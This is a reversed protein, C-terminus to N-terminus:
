LLTISTTDRYTKEEMRKKESNQILKIPKRRMKTSISKEKMEEM